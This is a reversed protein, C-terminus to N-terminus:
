HICTVLKFKWSQLRTARRKSAAEQDPKRNVENEVPLLAHGETKTDDEVVIVGVGSDTWRM